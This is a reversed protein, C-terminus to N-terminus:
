KKKNNNNRDKTVSSLKYPFSSVFARKFTTQKNFSQLM